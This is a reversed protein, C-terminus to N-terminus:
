RVEWWGPADAAWGAKSGDVTQVFWWLYFESFFPQAGTVQLQDGARVQGQSASTVSPEDRLHQGTGDQSIFFYAGQGIGPTTTSPDVPNYWAPNEQLYGQRNDGLRVELWSFGENDSRNGTFLLRDGERLNRLVEATTSNTAFVQTNIGARTMQLITGDIPPISYNGSTLTPTPPAFTPATTATPIQTPIPTESPQTQNDGDDIVNPNNQAAQTRDLDAQSIDGNANGSGLVLAIIIIGVIIVAAFGMLGWFLPTSFMSRQSPYSPPPYPTPTYQQQYPPPTQQQYPQYGLPTPNPNPNPNQNASPAQYQPQQYSPAPTNAQFNPPAQTPMREPPRSPMPPLNPVPNAAVSFTFFQTPEYRHGQIANRFTQAFETVNAYRDRYDKSLAKSLVDSIAPNLDARAAHPPTPLDNIHKHMLGFPTPAEFPPRGVLMLYAVVAVAYQDTAPSVPENRWQEPAMYSPTGMTAGAATLNSTANVLKAIGFDVVFITGQSDFMINSPKIDRHIVGKRHAYDLASAVQELMTATDQPSPLDNQTEVSQKLRQALTGGDLLRMVVYAIGQINGFDYIPVIHSNELAASTAAERKFREVFEAEGSLDTSLVKVAVERNLSTQFGRYVAGMGGKGLRERLEYQGLMRGSLNDLTM